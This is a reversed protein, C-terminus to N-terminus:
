CEHLRGGDSQDAFESDTLAALVFVVSLFMMKRMDTEGKTDSKLKKWFSPKASGFKGQKNWLVFSGTM